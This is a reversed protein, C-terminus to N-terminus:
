YVLEVAEQTRELLTISFMDKRAYSAVYFFNDSEGSQSHLWTETLALFDLDHEITYDKLSLVKGKVSRVNWLCLDLLQSLTLSSPNSRTSEIKICNSEERTRSCSTTKKKYDTCRVLIKFTSRSTPGPLPHFDGSISITLANFNFTAVSNPYYAIRAMFWKKTKTKILHSFKASYNLGTPTCQQMVILVCHQQQRPVDM